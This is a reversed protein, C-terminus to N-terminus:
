ENEKKVFKEGDWVFYETIDGFFTKPNQHLYHLGDFYFRYVYNYGPKSFTPAPIEVDTPTLKGNEYLWFKDGIHKDDSKNALVVLYKGNGGYVYYEIELDYDCEIELDNDGYFITEADFAPTAFQMSIGNTYDMFIRKFEGYDKENFNLARFIEKADDSLLSNDFIESQLTVTLPTSYVRITEIPSNNDKATIELFVDRKSYRTDHHILQTVVLKGDQSIKTDPNDGLQDIVYRIPSGITVPDSQITDEEVKGKMAIGCTPSLITYGEIIGDKIDYKALKQNNTDTLFVDPAGDWKAGIYLNNSRCFSYVNHDIHRFEGFIDMTNYIVKSTNVFSKGDWVLRIPWFECGYCNIETDSFVYDKKYAYLDVNLLEIPFIKTRKQYTLKKGKKFRVAILGECFEVWVNVNINVVHQNVVALWSGDEMQYCQLQYRVAVSDLVVEGSYPITFDFEMATNSKFHEANDFKAKDIKEAEALIKYICTGEETKLLNWIEKAVNEKPEAFKYATQANGDISTLIMALAAIFIILTNKM